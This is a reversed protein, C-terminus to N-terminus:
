MLILNFRLFIRVEERPPPHQPMTDLYRRLATAPTDGSPPGAQSNYTGGCPVDLSMRGPISESSCDVASVRSAGPPPPPPAHGLVSGRPSPPIPPCGLPVGGEPSKKGTIVLGEVCERTKQRRDDDDEDEEDGEKIDRSM